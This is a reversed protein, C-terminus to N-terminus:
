AVSVHLFYSKEQRIKRNKKNLVKKIGTDHHFNKHLFVQACSWTEVTMNQSIIGSFYM